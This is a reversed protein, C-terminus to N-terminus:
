DKRRRKGRTEERDIVDSNPDRPTRLSKLFRIVLDKDEDGLTAFAQAASSAESGPGDHLAIAEVLTLARGDHLYPASDAVGWLRATIFQANREATAKSFSEELVAGMAHRKLDSFLAVSVGEQEAKAFTM